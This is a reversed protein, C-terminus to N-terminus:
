VQKSIKLNKLVTTLDNISWGRNPALKALELRKHCLQEKITKIFELGPKIPRHRLRNLYTRIYLQKLEVPHSILRGESNIKSVPNAQGNKPFIKRKIKWFGIPNFSGDISSITSLSEKVKQVNEASIMDSIKMEVDHIEKELDEMDNKDELTKLKNRLVNRKMMLKQSETEKKKNSIRIKNFSQSICSKFKKEWATVQSELSFSTEFCKSLLDGSSTVDYFKAQCEINLIM